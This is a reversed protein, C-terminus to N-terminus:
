LFQFSNHKHKEGGGGIFFCNKLLDKCSVLHNHASEPVSIHGVGSGDLPSTISGYIKMHTVKHVSLEYQM